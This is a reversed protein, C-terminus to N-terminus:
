TEELGERIGAEHSVRGNILRWTEVLIWLNHCAAWQEPKLVAHRLEAFIKEARMRTQCVPPQLSLRMRYGLYRSHQALYAGRLCGIVMLHDSYHRPDRVSVNKFIWYNSGLTYDMWSWVVRGQSVVVWKRLDKFWTRQQPLLHGVIDEIGATAIEM